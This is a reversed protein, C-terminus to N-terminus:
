LGYDFRFHESLKKISKPATTIGFSFVDMGKMHTQLRHMLRGEYESLEFSTPAVQNRSGGDPVIIADFGSGDTGFHFQFGKEGEVYEIATATGADGFLPDRHMKSRKKADGALLLAKKITGTSILSAINSLGYVWGSCGLAVDEAYCEKSLGLRDQLICATAPLFYDATQSVFVLAEIESKDWCLEAILKEAAAFCLDSTCLTDSCRREKVGTTEVFAEPTYDSSIDVGSILTYNSVVNEPVGASIGAIRVNKFEFFAM